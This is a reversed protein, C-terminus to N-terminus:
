PSRLATMLKEKVESWKKIIYSITSGLFFMVCIDGTWRVPIVYTIFKLHTIFLPM